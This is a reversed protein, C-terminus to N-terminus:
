KARADKAQLSLFGAIILSSTCHRVTFGEAQVETFFLPVRRNGKDGLAWCTHMHMSSDSTQQSAHSQLLGWPAFAALRYALTLGPFLWLGLHSTWATTNTVCLGDRCRRGTIFIIRISTRLEYQLSDEQGKERQSEREGM